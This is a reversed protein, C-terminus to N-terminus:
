EETQTKIRRMEIIGNVLGTVIKKQYGPASCLVDNSPTSMFGAEILFAPMKAWNNAVFQDSFRTVGGSVGTSSKLADLLAQAMQHYTETDAAQAAYPSENPAYVYIANATQKEAMNLHIRVFFDANVSNAYQAREMNTVATEEDWRTMYVTAGLARLAACTQYALELVVVSEKRLTVKGQAMGTSGGKVKIDSGPMEPVKAISVPVAQHGPDLCVIVGHLPGAPATEGTQPPIFLTRQADKALRAGKLSYVTVTILDRAYACPLPLEGEFLGNADGPVILEAKQAVSSITLRVAHHGPATFRYGMKKDGPTLVLDQIKGCANADCAAAGVVSPQFACKCSYLTKQGPTEVTLIVSNATQTYYLPVAGSFHGDSAEVTMVGSENKNKYKVRLCDFGQADFSFELTQGQQFAAFSVVTDKNGAAATYSFFAFTFVIACLFVFKRRDNMRM